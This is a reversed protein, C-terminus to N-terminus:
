MNRDMENMVEERKQQKPLTVPNNYDKGNYKSLLEDMAFRELISALDIYEDWTLEGNNYNDLISEELDGVDNKENWDNAIAELKYLIRDYLSSPITGYRVNSHFDGYSIM